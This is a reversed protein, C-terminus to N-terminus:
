NPAQTSSASAALCLRMDAISTGSEMMSGARQSEVLSDPGGHEKSHADALRARGVKMSGGGGGLAAGSMLAGAVLGTRAHGERVWGLGVAGGAAWGAELVQQGAAGRDHGRVAGPALEPVVQQAGAVVDHHCLWTRRRAAAAASAPFWPRGCGEERHEAPSQGDRKWAYFHQGKNSHRPVSEGLM